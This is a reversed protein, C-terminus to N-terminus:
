AAAILGAGVTENTAEDILIFAGTQRNRAYPDFAMPRATRLRVRGIDNLALEAPAGERELTHIEVRDVLEDVMARASFTAHKIALGAGARLPADAMWCVDATFERDLSPRDSPRCILDGRSVDLEDALRLSVSMPPVAEELPGDFTDISVVTTTRESPLVLVEDGPRLVGGALQGAYARYDSAGDRIVYQVPLRLDELNRDSAVEVTELHELLALGGYWPTEDSIEVVNDGRLASIPFFATDISGLGTAFATFDCVIADFTEESYGVLDMKNIAVALHPIGLLSAIFAHRKTQEIVGKRADVLIIALDATSAGTVM